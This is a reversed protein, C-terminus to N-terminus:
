FGGYKKGEGMTQLSLLPQVMEGIGESHFYESELECEWEVAPLHLLKWYCCETGVIFLVMFGLPLGGCQFTTVSSEKVFQISDRKIDYAGGMM